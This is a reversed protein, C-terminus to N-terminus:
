ILYFRLPHAPPVHSASAHVDHLLCPCCAGPQHLAIAFCYRERIKELEQREENNLHNLDKDFQM